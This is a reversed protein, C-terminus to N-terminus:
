KLVGWRFVSIPGKTQLNNIKTLHKEIYKQADKSIFNEDNDSYVIWGSPNNKIIENLKELTIKKEGEQAREGGMSFVQMKSGQWYFNRFARTVLVDESNRHALVYGFVKKYNPNESQSTQNYVNEVQFFYSFNIVMVLLLAILIYYIKENYIKLNDRFFSAVKWIGFAILFIQFPKIFFLYQAGVNRDWFFMALILITLYSATVFVGESRKSKILYYSGIIMLAGALIWNSYDFFSKNLYSFHNQWRLSGTLTNENLFLALVILIGLSAYRWYHNSFDKKAGLQLITMWIFYVLGVFIFNATLLHIHMSLFGLLVLPIFFLFNLKTKNNLKNVLNWKSKIKSEFFNFAVYSFILFLPTFMAYMRMMRSFIIGDISFAMLIASILGVTKNNTFKFGILYVLWVLLVGWGVSVVRYSWEESDPLFKLTQAVQWNYVWARTYTDPGDNWFDFDFFTKFYENDEFPKELNFDWRRWEGTQMYGYSTNVGLFEDASFSKEGLNYFRLVASIILIIGLIILWKRKTLLNKM